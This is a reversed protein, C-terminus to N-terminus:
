ERECAVGKDPDLRREAADDDTKRKKSGDHDHYAAGSEFDKSQFNAEM